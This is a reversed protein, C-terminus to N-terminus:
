DVLTDVVHNRCRVSAQKVQVLEVVCVPSLERRWQGAARGSCADRMSGLVVTSGRRSARGGGPSPCFSPWIVPVGTDSPRQRPIDSDTSDVGDDGSDAM